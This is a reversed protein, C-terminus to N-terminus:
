KTSFTVSMQRGQIVQSCRLYYGGNELYFFKEKITKTSVGLAGSQTRAIYEVESETFQRGFINPLRASTKKGDVIVPYTNPDRTVARKTSETRAQKGTITHSPKVKTAINTTKHSPKAKELSARKRDVHKAPPRTIRDLGPSKAHAPKAPKEDSAYATPTASQPPAEELYKAGQPSGLFWFFYGTALLTLAIILPVRYQKM